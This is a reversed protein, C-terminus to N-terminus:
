GEHHGPTRPDAGVFVLATRGATYGVHCSTNTETATLTQQKADGKLMTVVGLEVAGASLTNKGTPPPVRRVKVIAVDHALEFLEFLSQHRKACADAPRDLAALCLSLGLLTRMM